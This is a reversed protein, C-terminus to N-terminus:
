YRKLTMHDYIIKNKSIYTFPMTIWCNSRYTFIRARYKHHGLAKVRPKGYAFSWGTSDRVSADYSNKRVRIRVQKNRWHGWFKKPMGAHYSSASATMPPIVTTSLTVGALLTALWKLGTHM